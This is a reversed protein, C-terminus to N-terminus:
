ALLEFFFRISSWVTVIVRSVPPPFDPLRDNERCNVLVMPSALFLSERIPLKSQLWSPGSLLVLAVTSVRAKPTKGSSIKRCFPDLAQLVRPRERASAWHFFVVGSPM